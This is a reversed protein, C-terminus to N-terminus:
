DDLGRTFTRADMSPVFSRSFAGSDRTIIAKAGMLEASARVIGDELDPEDSHFARDVVEATLDYCSVVQRFGDLRERVIAENKFHRCLVYYVDKLLSLLVVPEFDDSEFAACLLDVADQHAPRKASLYDLIINTDLVVRDM